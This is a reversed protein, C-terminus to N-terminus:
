SACTSGWVDNPSKVLRPTEYQASGRAGLATMGAFAPVLAGLAGLTVHTRRMTTAVTSPRRIASSAAVPDGHAPKPSRPTTLRRRPRRLAGASNESYSTVDGGAMTPSTSTTPDATASLVRVSM